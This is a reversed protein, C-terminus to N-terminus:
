RGSDRSKGPELRRADKGPAPATASLATGSKSKVLATDIADIFGDVNVDERFNTTNIAQGAKSKTQATDIADVFHDANTDGILIDMPIDINNTHVGDNINTLRVVLHQVNAVGTLNATAQSGTVTFGSVSGVGSQVTAGAITVPTAFSM